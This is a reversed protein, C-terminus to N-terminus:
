ARKGIKHWSGKGDVLYNTAGRTEIRCVFLGRAEIWKFAFHMKLSQIKEKLMTKLFKLM